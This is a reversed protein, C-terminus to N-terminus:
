KSLKFTWNRFESRSEIRIWVSEADTVRSFVGILINESITRLPKSKKRDHMRSFLKQRITETELFGGQAKLEQVQFVLGGFFFYVTLLLIKAFNM